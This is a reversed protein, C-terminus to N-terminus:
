AALPLDPASDEAALALRVGCAACDLEEVDTDYAAPTTCLPCEVLLMRDNRPATDLRGTRTVPVEIV